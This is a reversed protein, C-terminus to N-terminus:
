TEQNSIIPEHLNNREMVPFAMKPPKFAASDEATRSAQDWILERPSLKQTGRYSQVSFVSDSKQLTRPGFPSWKESSSKDRDGNGSDMSSVDPGPLSTSSGHTFWGRPKQKPSSHPTSSPSSQISAILRDEKAMEGNQLKLKHVVQPVHDYKTEETTLGKHLTYGMDTLGAQQKFHQISEQNQKTILSNRIIHMAMVKVVPAKNMQDSSASPTVSFSNEGEEVKSLQQYKWDPIIPKKWLVKSCMDTSPPTMPTPDELVDDYSFAGRHMRTPLSMKGLLGGTSHEIAPVDPERSSAM